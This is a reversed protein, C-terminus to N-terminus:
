SETLLLKGFDLRIKGREASMTRYMPDGAGMFPGDPTWLESQIAGRDREFCAKFELAQATYSHHLVILASLRPAM